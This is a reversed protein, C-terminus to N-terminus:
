DVTYVRKEAFPSFERGNGKYFKGYFEVVNLRAGHVLSEFMALVCAAFHMFAYMFAMLAFTVIGAISGFDPSRPLLLDNVAEAIIVGGVGVAAIRIYSMINSSLSPIEFIGVIGEAWFLVAASAAFLIGAGVGVEPPFASFLYTAVLLIGGIEIGLWALKAYAHKRSHNWENIAGLVFGLGVHVMGIVLAYFMLTQIGELRHFGRYLPEQLGLLATHSFAFYEDFFIGFAIAPISAIAWIRGVANTLTGKKSKWVMFGAIFLSMVGYGADGLILGYLFPIAFFLILTPDIETAQPISLFKVLFEFPGAYGPNVLLTPATEEHGNLIRQVMVSKGFKHRLESEIKDFRDKPVWGEAFFLRETRGFSAAVAARDAEISLAEELMLLVPYYKSSFAAIQNQGEAIEQRAAFIEGKLNAIADKPKGSIKPVPGCTAIGELAKAADAGARIALVACVETGSAHAVALQHEHTLTSLRHAVEHRSKNAYKLVYFDLNEAHLTSFDIDLNGLISLDAIQSDFRAIKKRGEDAMDSANRVSADIDLAAALELPEDIKMPSPPMPAPSLAAKIGRIRVLQASVADFYDLPSEKSLLESKTELLDIAGAKQLFSCVSSLEARLGIIRVKQMPAPKFM